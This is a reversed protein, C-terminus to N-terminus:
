CFARAFFFSAIFCIGAAKRQRIILHTKSLSFFIDIEEKGRTMSYINDRKECVTKWNLLQIAGYDHTQKPQSKEATQQAKSEILISAGPNQMEYISHGNDGPFKQDGHRGGDQKNRTLTSKSLIYM